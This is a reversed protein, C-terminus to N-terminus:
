KRKNFFAIADKAVSVDPTMGKNIFSMIKLTTIIRRCEKKILRGNVKAPTKGVYDEFNKWYIKNLAEESLDFGRQLFDDTHVLYRGDEKMVRNTQADFMGDILDM